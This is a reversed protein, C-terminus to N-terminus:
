RWKLSDRQIFWIFLFLCVPHLLIIYMSFSAFFKPIQLMNERRTWEIYTYLICYSHMSFTWETLFFIASVVVVVISKHINTHTHPSPPPPTPAPWRGVFAFLYFNLLFFSSLCRMRMFSVCLDVPHYIKKKKRKKEIKILAHILNLICYYQPTWIRHLYQLQWGYIQITSESLSQRAGLSHSTLVSGAGSTAAATATDTEGCFFFLTRIFAHTDCVRM